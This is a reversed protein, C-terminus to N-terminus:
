VILLEKTMRNLSSAGDATIVILDEIRIGFEGPLYIGPEVSLVHGTELLSLNGSAAFPPEHVDLGIGHGLRHTFFSGYGADTIVKRAAQDVADCSIGPIAAHYASMHASLVIAYVEKFHESAYGVACTRTMDAHYGKYTGGIDFMVTDGRAIRKKSLIPHPSASDPGCAILGSGVSDFGERIRLDILEKSIQETSKGELGSQLLKMLALEAMEQAKKIISLEESTKICRLPELIKNGDCWSVNPYQHLLQLLWGSKTTHGVAGTLPHGGLAAHGISTDLLTYLIKFADDGESWSVPELQQCIESLYNQELVPYLFFADKETLVLATLRDTVAHHYGTLYHLDNSPTLILFSIGQEAMMIRAYKLRKEYIEM